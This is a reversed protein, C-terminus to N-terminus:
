ALRIDSLSSTRELPSNQGFELIELYNELTHYHQYVYRLIEQTTIPELSEKIETIRYASREESLPPPQGYLNTFSARAHAESFSFIPVIIMVAGGRTFISQATALYRKLQHSALYTGLAQRDVYGEQPTQEEPLAM